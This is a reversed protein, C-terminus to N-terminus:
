LGKDYVRMYRWRQPRYKKGTIIHGMPSEEYNPCHNERKAANMTITRDDTCCYLGDCDAICHSCYVCYQM